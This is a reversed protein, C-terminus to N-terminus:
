PGIRVLKTKGQIQYIALENKGDRYADPPVMMAWNLKKAGRSKFGVGTAVIRGNIALALQMGVPDTTTPPPTVAGTPNLTVPVGGTSGSEIRGGLQCLCVPGVPNVNDLRGADVLTAKPTGTAPLEEFDSVPKGVLDAFRGSRYVSDRGFGFREVRGHLAADRKKQWDAVDMRVFGGYTTAV